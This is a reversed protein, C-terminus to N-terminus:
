FNNKLSEGNANFIEPFGDTMLMLSDGTSLTDTIKQSIAAIEPSALVTGIINWGVCIAPAVKLWPRIEALTRDPLNEFGQMELRAKIRDSIPNM